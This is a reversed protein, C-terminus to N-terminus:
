VIEVNGLQYYMRNHYYGRPRKSYIWSKIKIEPKKFLAEIISILPNDARVVLMYPATSQDSTWYFDIYEGARRSRLVRELPKLTGQFEASGFPEALADQTVAFVRDQALDEAYFYPMRHLLGIDEKTYVHTGAAIAAMKRRLATTNQGTKLAQWTMRGRYYQKLAEATTRDQENPVVAGLELWRQTFNERWCRYSACALVVPDDKFTIPEAEAKSSKELSELWDDVTQVNSTVVSLNPM